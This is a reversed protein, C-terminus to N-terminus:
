DQHQRGTGLTDGERACGDQGQFHNFRGVRGWWGWSWFSFCSLYESSLGQNQGPTFLSSMMWPWVPGTPNAECKIGATPAEQAEWGGTMTGKSCIIQPDKPLGCHALHGRGERVQVPKHYPYSTSAHLGGLATGPVCYTRLSICVLLM